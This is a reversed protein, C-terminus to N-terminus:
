SRGRLKRKVQAIATRLGPDRADLLNAVFVGPRTVRSSFSVKYRLSWDRYFGLIQARTVEARPREQEGRLNIVIVEAAPLRFSNLGWTRTLAL